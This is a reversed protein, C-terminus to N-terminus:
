PSTPEEEDLGLAFGLIAIVVILIPISLYGWAEGELGSRREEAEAPAPQAHAPAALVLSVAAALGIAWKRM